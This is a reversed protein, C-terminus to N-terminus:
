QMKEFIQLSYIIQSNYGSICSKCCYYCMPTASIWCLKFYCCHFQWICWSALWFEEKADVIIYCISCSNPLALQTWKCWIIKTIAQIIRSQCPWFVWPFARTHSLWTRWIESDLWCSWLHNVVYYKSVIQIEQNHSPQCTYSPETHMKCWSQSAIKNYYLFTLM